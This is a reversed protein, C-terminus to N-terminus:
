ANRAVGGLTFSATTINTFTTVNWRVDRLLDTVTASTQVDGGRRPYSRRRHGGVIAVV